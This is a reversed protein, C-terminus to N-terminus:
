RRRMYRFGHPELMYTVDDIRPRKRYIYSQVAYKGCLWGFILLAPFISITLIIDPLKFLHWVDSTLSAILNAILLICLAILLGCLARYNSKSM